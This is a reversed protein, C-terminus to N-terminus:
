GFLPPTRHAWPMVRELQRSVALVTADELPRGALQVGIPLGDATLGAPISAAPQGTVNYIATFAGLTAAREFAEAPEFSKWAGVPPTPVAVAPTLWLDADGFWEIIRAALRAQQARIDKPDLRKGADYLWRAVPGLLSRHLV